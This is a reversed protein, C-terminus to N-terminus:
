ANDTHGVSVRTTWGPELFVTDGYSLIFAKQGQDKNKQTVTMSPTGKLGAAEVLETYSVVNRPVLESKGNLVIEYPGKPPKEGKLALATKGEELLARDEPTLDTKKSFHKYIRNLMTPVQQDSLKARLKNVANGFIQKGGTMGKKYAENNQRELRLVDKGADTLVWLGTLTIGIQPQIYGRLALQLLSARDKAFDTSLRVTEVFSQQPGLDRIRLLFQHEEGSLGM